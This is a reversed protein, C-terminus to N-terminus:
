ASAWIGTSVKGHAILEQATKEAIQSPIAFRRGRRDSDSIHVHIGILETRACEGASRGLQRTTAADDPHVRGAQYTM